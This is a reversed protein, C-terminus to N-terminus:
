QAGGTKTKPNGAHVGALDGVPGGKLLQKKIQMARFKNMTRPDHGIVPQSTARFNVVQWIWLFSCGVLPAASRYTYGRNKLEMKAARGNMIKAAYVFRSFEANM